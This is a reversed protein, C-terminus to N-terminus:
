TLLPTPLVFGHLAMGLTDKDNEVSQARLAYPTSGIRQNPELAEFLGTANESFWIRLFTDSQSFVSDSIPQTMGSLATDGLMLSFSGTTVTLPISATPEGSLTGDNAWLTNNASDVIAFKFHHVGGYPEMAGSAAKKGIQGQYNLMFQAPAAASQDVVTASVRMKLQLMTLVLVAIVAVLYGANRINRRIKQQYMNQQYM